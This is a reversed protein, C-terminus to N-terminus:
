DGGSKETDFRPTVKVSEQRNISGLKKGRLRQMMRKFLGREAVKSQQHANVQSDTKQQQDRNLLLVRKLAEPCTKMLPILVARELEAVTVPTVAIASATRPKAYLLSHIGLSEGIGLRAVELADQEMGGATDDSSRGAVHVAIVGSVIIFISSGEEGQHILYDGAQYSRMQAMEVIRPYIEPPFHSFIDVKELLESFTPMKMAEPEAQNLEIRSQPTTFTIGARQLYESMRVWVIEELRNREGFRAFSYIVQYNGMGSILGHFYVKPCPDRLVDSLSYLSELIIKKVKLPPHSPHIAVPMQLRAYGYASYNIIPADAVPTNPISILHKIRTQIRTARWNIDIVEGEHDGIKVWDGVRFPHEINLAIGSFINSLNVQIALGIIMAILGSTAMLGTLKQDFVFALIAFFALTYIIAAIIGRVVGPITRGTSHELPKWFFIELADVILLAPFIWWLMDIINMVIQQLYPDQYTLYNDILWMEGSVLLLLYLAFEMIWFLTRLRQLRKVKRLVLLLLLLAGSFIAMESSYEQPISGRLTLHSKQLYIIFNFNSYAVQATRNNLYELRGLTDVLKISEYSIANTIQWNDIQGLPLNHKVRDVLPVASNVGMGITDNVYIITNRNLQRNRFTIGVAHEGLPVRSQVFNTRFDGKIHYARYRTEGDDSRETPDGFKLEDVANEFRLDDAKFDGRFRFWINFDLTIKEAQEDYPGIQNIKVGTFVLNKRYMPQGNVDIIYGMERQGAIDIVEGIDPVVEYHVMSSVLVNNNYIAVAIPKNVDGNADFYNLGTVGPIATDPANFKALQARLQRREAVLKERDGTIEGQIMAEVLVKATDYAYAANWDPLEHYKELYRSKFLQADANAADFNIPATVYIGDSYFGPRRKEAPLDKFGDTFDNGAVADGGMLPNKMGVDRFAQVLHVAYEGYMAMFILGAQDGRARIAEMIARAQSPGDQDGDYIHVKDVETKLKKASDAFVTGLYDGYADSSKVVTVRQQQLVNVAFNALYSGQAEDNFITRFFWENDLTVRNNTASYTIIPLGAAAYIPGAAISTSSYDHGIVAIAQHEDVIQQALAKAKDKDGYDNYRKLLVPKGNLGGRRNFEDIFLRAGRLNAQEPVSDEDQTDIFVIELADVTEEASMAGFSLLLLLPLSLLRAVTMTKM